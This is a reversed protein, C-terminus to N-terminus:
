RWRIPSHIWTPVHRRDPDNKPIALLNSEHSIRVSPTWGQAYDALEAIEIPWVAAESCLEFPIKDGGIKLSEASRDSVGVRAIATPLRPAVSTPPM